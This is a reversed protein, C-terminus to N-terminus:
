RNRVCRSDTDVIRHYTSHSQAPQYSSPTESSTKPLLSDAEKMGVGENLNQAQGQSAFAQGIGQSLLNKTNIM